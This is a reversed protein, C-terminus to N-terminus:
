FIKTVKTIDGQSYEKPMTWPWWLPLTAQQHPNMLYSMVTKSLLLSIFLLTKGQTHTHTHTHEWNFEFQNTIYEYVTNSQGLTEPYLPGSIQASHVSVRNSNDSFMTKHLILQFTLLASHAHKLPDDGTVATM